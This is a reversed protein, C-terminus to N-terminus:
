FSKELKWRVNYDLDKLNEQTRYVFQFLLLLWIIRISGASLQAGHPWHVEAVTKYFRMRGATLMARRLVPQYM